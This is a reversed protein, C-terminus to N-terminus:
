HILLPASSAIFSSKLDILFLYRLIQNHEDITNYIDYFLDLDYHIM